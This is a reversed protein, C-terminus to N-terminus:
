TRVSDFAARTEWEKLLRWRPTSLPDRGLAAIAAHTHMAEFYSKSCSDYVVDDNVVRALVSRAFTDMANIFIRYEDLMQPHKVVMERLADLAPKANPGKLEGSERDFPVDFVIGYGLTALRQLLNSNVIHQTFYRDLEIAAILRNRQLDQNALQKTLRLQQLGTFAAIAVVPGSLFYLM